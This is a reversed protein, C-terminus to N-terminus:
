KYLYLVLRERDGINEIKIKYKNIKSKNIINVLTKKNHIFDTNEIGGINGKVLRNKGVKKYYPMDIIAIGKNNIVRYIESLSKIQDEEILLHNFSSWACIIADFESNKYPLSCMDGIKFKIKVNSKKALIRADKIFNPALDIGEIKYGAKALPITLRGYGCALDLIKQEKNIHSKIFKLYGIDRKKTMLSSMGKTGLQKYFLKTKESQEM